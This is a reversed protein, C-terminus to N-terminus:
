AGKLDKTSAGPIFVSSEAAAMVPGASSFTAKRVDDFATLTRIVVGGPVDMAYTTTRDDKDLETWLKAM